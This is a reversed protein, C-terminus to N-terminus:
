SEHSSGGLVSANGHLGHRQLHKLPESIARRDVARPPSRQFLDVRPHCPGAEQFLHKKSHTRGVAQQNAIKETKKEPIILLIM